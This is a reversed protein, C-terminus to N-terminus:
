VKTVVEADGATQVIGKFKPFGAGTSKFKYTGKDGKSIKLKAALEVPGRDSLQLEAPGAFKTRKSNVAVLPNVVIAQMPPAGAIVFTKAAPSVAGSVKPLCLWAISLSVALKWLFSAVGENLSSSRAARRASVPVFRWSRGPRTRRSLGLMRSVVSRVGM